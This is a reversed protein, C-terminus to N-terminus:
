KNTKIKGFWKDIGGELIYVQEYGSKRLINAARSAFFYNEDYLYVPKDKRIETYRMKFQSIPINRAGLIHKADFEAPERVDIVSVKRINENLEHANAMTASRKRMLWLWGLYLGILLIIVLVFILLFQLFTM